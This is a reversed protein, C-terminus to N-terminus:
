LNRENILDIAEKVSDLSVNTFDTFVQGGHALEIGIVVCVKESVITGSIASELYPSVQAKTLEM